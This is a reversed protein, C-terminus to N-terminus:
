NSNHYWNKTISHATM